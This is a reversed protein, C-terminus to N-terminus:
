QLRRLTPLFLFGYLVVGITLVATGGFAWQPGVINAVVGVVFVALQMLSMEMMFVSMVRGRYESETYSQVLVQSLSMRGSQGVGLAVLIGASVWFWTSWSFLLLTVGLIGSSILLLMGRNKSPMSAIVLAGILAGVGQISMLFGLGGADTGLVERTFGPLLQQYPMAGVVLVFNLLLLMRVTPDHRMYRLGEVLDSFV